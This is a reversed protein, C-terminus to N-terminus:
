FVCIVEYTLKFYFYVKAYTGEGIKKLLEISKNCLATEVSKIIFAKEEKSM